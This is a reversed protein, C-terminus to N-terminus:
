LDEQSSGPGGDSPVKGFDLGLSVGFLMRNHCQDHLIIHQDYDTLVHCFMPFLIVIRASKKNHSYSLFFIVNFMM